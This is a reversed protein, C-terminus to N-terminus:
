SFLRRTVNTKALDILEDGRGPLVTGAEHRVHSWALSGNRRLADTLGDLSDGPARGCSM